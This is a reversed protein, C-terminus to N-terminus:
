TSRPSIPPRISKATSRRRWGKTSRTAPGSFCRDLELILRRINSAAVEFETVRAPSRAPPRALCIASLEDGRGVSVKGDIVYFAIGQAPVTGTGSAFSSGPYLGAFV